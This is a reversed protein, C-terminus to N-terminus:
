NLKLGKPDDAQLEIYGCDPCVFCTVGSRKESEFLGKKKNLLWVGVRHENGCLRAQFMVAKCKMCEM